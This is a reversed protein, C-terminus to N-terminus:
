SEPLEKAYWDLVPKADIAFRYGQGEWFGCAAPNCGYVAALIRQARGLLGRELHRVVRAGWGQRQYSAHILLLNVTADGPEPYDVKFDLVGVVPRGSEGDVMVGLPHPQAEALVLEVHRRPDEAAADLETRVEAMTPVPIAIMDFYDPTALYLGHVVAADHPTVPRTLAPLVPGADGFASAGLPDVHPM